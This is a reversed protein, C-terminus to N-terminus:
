ASDLGVAAEDEGPAASGALGGMPFVAETMWCGGYPEATQKALIFTFAHAQWREDVVTVLVRAVSGDIMPRGVLTAQPRAFCAFAGSRVMAGFRDLPGTVSRNGPSAFAYCQLIGVGDANDDAMGALQIRVVQDPLVDPGPMAIKNAILESFQQLETDDTLKLSPGPAERLRPSFAVGLIGV